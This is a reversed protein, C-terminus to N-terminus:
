VHKDGNTLIKSFVHGLNAPEVKDLKGSRDKAPVAETAGCVLERTGDERVRLYMVLDLYGPLKESISGQLDFAASRKGTAEDRDIKSLCTFIVHYDPIDRFARITDRMSIGYAGWLRLMDKAEPFEKAAMAHVTQGLETLSDVFITNYKAKAEPTQLYAYVEKIRKPREIMPLLRGDDGRTVDVFDINSGSISLLGGEISMVFPKFEPPLTKVLSTKGAGSPGYVTAKIYQSNETAANQIKM